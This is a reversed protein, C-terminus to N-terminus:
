VVEASVTRAAIFDDLDARRYKVVRGIKVMPLNYRKTCAWTALTDVAIGLYAAAAPRSMLDSHNINAPRNEATTAQDQM